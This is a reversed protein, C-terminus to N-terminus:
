AARPTNVQPAGRVFAEFRANCLVAPSRQARLLEIAAAGSWGGIILAAGAILNSRNLGAQCHVLTPAIKICQHVHKALVYVEAENIPTSSDDRLWAKTVVQNSTTTYAEWPYLSVIYKFFEPAKERPCGGVWLNGIIHSFLPASFPIMGERAIGEIHHTTLDALQDEPVDPKSDVLTLKTM